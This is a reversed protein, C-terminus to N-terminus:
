LARWKDRDQALGIWDTGRGLGISNVWRHRPRGLRLRRQKFNVYNTMAHTVYGPFKECNNIGIFETILM